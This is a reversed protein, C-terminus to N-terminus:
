ERFILLHVENDSIEKIRFSFSRDTLEGLLFVPVRKHYVFLAKEKPLQDLEELIVLMPLPMELHRVDITQTNNNFRNLLSLWDENTESQVAKVKMEINQQSLFYTHFLDENIIESHSAYGQKELLAILPGPVFSSVIKLVKGDKLSRVNQLIITLPDDGNELIPRTDVEIIDEPNVRDAFCDKNQQSHNTARAGKRDIEFGLPALKTFFDDVSCGGVKSAMGITTRGAMLKRLIPNRLKEFKSSISIIADLAGPHAKLISAIKTNINILM